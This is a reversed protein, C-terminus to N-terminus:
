TRRAFTVKGHRDTKLQYRRDHAVTHHRPCLMVGDDVSTKGGHSWATLHHAHCMGPPWDCGSTACGGDRLMM